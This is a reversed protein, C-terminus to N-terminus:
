LLKSTNKNINNSGEDDTNSESNLTAKTHKKLKNGFEACKLLM